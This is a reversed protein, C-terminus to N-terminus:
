TNLIGQLKKERIQNKYNTQKMFIRYKKTYNDLLPKVNMDCKSIEYPGHALLLVDSKIM